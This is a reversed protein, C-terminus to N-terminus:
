KSLAVIGEEIEKLENQVLESKQYRAPLKSIAAKALEYTQRASTHDGKTSEIGAKKILWKEHRRLKKIIVDIRAIAEDYQEGQELYEIARQELTILRGLRNMGADIAKAATNFNTSDVDLILDAWKYYFQARPKPHFQIAQRYDLEANKFNKSKEHLRSRVMLAASNNPNKLIYRNVYEFGEELSNNLELLDGMLFDIDQQSPNLEEVKAMDKLALEYTGHARYLLGRKLLLEVSNPNSKIQASVEEIQEHLDGHAALNFNGCLMFVFM